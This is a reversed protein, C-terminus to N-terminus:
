NLLNCIVRKPPNNTKQKQTGYLDRVLHYGISVSPFFHNLRWPLFGKWLSYRSAKGVSFHAMDFSEAVDAQKFRDRAFASRIGNISGSSALLRM